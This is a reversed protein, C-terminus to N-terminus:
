AVRRLKTPASVVPASAARRKFLTKGVMGLVLVGGLGIAGWKAYTLLDARQAAASIRAAISQQDLATQQAVVEEKAAIAKEQIPVAVRDVLSVASLVKQVSYLAGAHERPIDRCAAGIDSNPNAWPPCIGFPCCSWPKSKCKLRNTQDNAYKCDCFEEWALSDCASEGFGSM